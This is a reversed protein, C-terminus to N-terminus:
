PDGIRVKLVQQKGLRALDQRDHDCSTTRQVEASITNSHKGMGITGLEISDEMVSIQQVKSTRIDSFYTSFALTIRVRVLAPFAPRSILTIQTDLFFSVM